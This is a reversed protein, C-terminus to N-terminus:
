KNELYFKEFEDKSLPRSYLGGQFVQCGHEILFDQQARTEVGEAVVLNFINVIM